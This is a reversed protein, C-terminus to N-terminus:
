RPCRGINRAIQRQSYQVERLRRGFDDNQYIVLDRLDLECQTVGLELAARCYGRVRVPDSAWWLADSYTMEAPGTLIVMVAFEAPYRDTAMAMLLIATLM